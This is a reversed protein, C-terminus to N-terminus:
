LPGIQYEISTEIDLDVTDVVVVRGWDRGRLLMEL